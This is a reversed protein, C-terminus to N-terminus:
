LGSISGAVGEVADKLRIAERTVLDNEDECSEAVFTATEAVFGLLKSGCAKWLTEACNLAFMRIKADESRSHMLIDLNISKLVSDDTVNEAGAVLCDQLLAKVSDPVHLKVCVPIQAILTTSLQRIKDDRWFSGDDAALSKALTELVPSLLRGDDAEVNTYDKLIEVLPSLLMSMYPNMLGKFYDLLGIYVHCFMIKTDVDSEGAFAWDYLRRFLPRFSQENLKIVLEVFASVARTLIQEETYGKVIGFASLFVNFLARLNDQIAARAASRISRRLLDFYAVLAGTNPSHELATWLECLTPLLIKSPAKKALAKMLNSIEEPPRASSSCHDFYLKIVQTLESPSWFTPIAILLNHLLQILDATLAEPGNRLVSVSQSVINRFHPILRPGLKAPLTILAKVAAGTVDVNEKPNLLGILLPALATISAEEGACLTSGIARLANLASILLPQQSQELHQSLLKHIAGCIESVSTTANQRVTGSVRPLRTSLLSLAGEQISHDDNSIMGLVTDIFSNASMVNLVRTMSLRASKAIDEVKVETNASAVSMSQTSLVILISIVDGLEGGALPVVDMADPESPKSSAPFAKAAFGVFTIIAQARRKFLTSLSVSHEDLSSDDLFLKEANEPTIARHLLRESERLMEALVWVQLHPEFHHVLATPLALAGQADGSDKDKSKGKSKTGFLQQQSRAIKNASKEILLLCLPALFDKPGLVTILHSFFSTRRHRPIHNAADTFVRLFERAGVYLALGGSPYSQKLSSVMVPVISDVTKQVIGWGYGDDRSLLSSAGSGENGKGTGGVMAAVGVGMFTFVPMVNRLVSEPALRALGAILLLAQHLTQPNASVRIIDVLVDLRIPTPNLNVPDRVGAAVGEISSMLNQCVFEVSTTGFISAGSTQYRVVQSLTELLHVILDFSPPLFDAESQITPNPTSTISLAALVEALIALCQFPRNQEDLSSDESEAQSPDVRAKKSPPRAESENGEIIDGLERLVAQVGILDGLLTKAPLAEDGTQAKRDAIVAAELINQVIELRKDKVLGGAIWARTTCETLPSRLSIFHEEGSFARVLLKCFVDWPMLKSHGKNHEANDLTFTEPDGFVIQVALKAASELKTLAHLFPLLLMAATIEPGVKRKSKTAVFVNKKASLQQQTLVFTPAIIRLLAIQAGPLVSLANVHSLLYCLIHTRYKTSEKEQNKDSSALQEAHWSGVYDGDALFHERIEALTSVYTALDDPSLYQLDGEGNNTNVYVRDFAYVADFKRGKGKSVESVSLKKLAGLCNVGAMRIDRDPNSLALVVAPLLTQFDMASSGSSPTTHAQLFAALHSLVVAGLTNMEDEKEKNIQIGVGFRLWVSVLFVGAESGLCRFMVKIIYVRAQSAGVTFISASALTNSFIYLQQMLDAYLDEAQSVNRVWDVAPPNSSSAAQAPLTAIDSLVALYLLGETGRNNPKSVIQADLRTRILTEDLESGEETPVHMPRTQKLTNLTELAFHLQTDAAAGSTKLVERVVCMGLLRTQPNPDVLKHVLAELESKSNPSSLINAAIRGVLMRNLVCMRDEEGEEIGKDDDLGVDAMNEVCGVLWPHVHGSDRLIDWVGSVMKGRSKSYLLHPFVVRHFLTNRWDGHSDWESNTTASASLNKIVFGLHANVLGRKPPKVKEDGEEVFLVGCLLELCRELTKKSELVVDALNKTTKEGAYLVELVGVDTDLVRALLAESISELDATPLDETRTRFIDLLAKVGMKRVSSDANSSALLAERLRDSTSSISRSNKSSSPSSGNALGAFLLVLEDIKNKGNIDGEERDGGDGDDGNDSGEYERRVDRFITPYKQYVASLLSLLHHHIAPIDSDSDLASRLLQSTVDRILTTPPASTSTLVSEFFLFAEKSIQDGDGSESLDLRRTLIGWFPKLVREAGEWEGVSGDDPVALIKDLIEEDKKSTVDNELLEDQASCIAVLTKVLQQAGIGTGPAAAGVIGSIIIRLAAPTLSGPSQSSLTALLIYSTFVTDREIGEYRKSSRTKGQAKMKLIGLPELVAAFVLASTGESLGKASTAIVFDHMTAAWFAVLTRYFKGNSFVGDKVGKMADGLLGVVFRALDGEKLMAQVLAQRPLVLDAPTTPKQAQKQHPILFKFLVPERHLHLITLMKAWQRTEHYPLFLSLVARLNFEHIRFRRVLWEIIKSAANGELLFAGLEKLCGELAEDLDNVSESPLLTRDLTKAHYSFLQDEYSAIRPNLISLADFGSRGLAYISDLDHEAAERSNPFLYSEVTAHKGRTRSRELLIQANQSAQTALQSALATPM